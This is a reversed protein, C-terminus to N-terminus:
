NKANTLSVVFEFTVVNKINQIEKLPHLKIMEEVTLGFTRGQLLEVDPIDASRARQLEDPTFLKAVDNEGDHTTNSAAICVEFIVM